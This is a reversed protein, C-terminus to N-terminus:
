TPIITDSCKKQGRSLNAALPWICVTDPGAEEFQLKGSPGLFRRVLKPQKQELIKELSCHRHHRCSAQKPTFLYPLVCPDNRSM